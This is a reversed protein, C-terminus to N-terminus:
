PRPLIASFGGLVLQSSLPMSHDAFLSALSMPLPTPEDCPLVHSAPAGSQRREFRFLSTLKRRSAVLASCGSCNLARDSRKFRDEAARSFASFSTFFKLAWIVLSEVAQQVCKLFILAKVAFSLVYPLLVLCKAILVLRKEIFESFM